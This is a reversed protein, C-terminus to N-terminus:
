ITVPVRYAVRAGLLPLNNITFVRPAQVNAAPWPYDDDQLRGVTYGVLEELKEVGPGPEVRSAICLVELNAFWLGTGFTHPELWPDAWILMLAPPDIADVLDAHVPPDSDLSPALALAAQARVSGLLLTGGATVTM